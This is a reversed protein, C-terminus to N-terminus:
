ISWSGNTDVEGFVAEGGTPSGLRLRMMTLRRAGANILIEGLYITGFEPVVISNEDIVAGPFPRDRWKIQKVITAIIYGSERVLRGRAPANMYFHRGHEKVWGPDDVATLLMLLAAFGTDIDWYPM